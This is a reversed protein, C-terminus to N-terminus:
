EGAVSRVVNAILNAAPLFDAIEEATTKYTWIYGYRRGTLDDAFGVQMKGHGSSVLAPDISTDQEISGMLRGSLSFSGAEGRAQWEFGSPGGLGFLGKKRLRGDIWFEATTRIGEIIYRVYTPHVEEGSGTLGVLHLKDVQQDLLGICGYGRKYQWEEGTKLNLFNLHEYREPELPEAEMRKARLLTAIRGLLAQIDKSEM